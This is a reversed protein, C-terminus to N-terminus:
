KQEESKAIFINYEQNGLKISGINRARKAEM